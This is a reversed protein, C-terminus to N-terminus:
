VTDEGSDSSQRSSELRAKLQANELFLAQIEETQKAIASVLDEFELASQPQPSHRSSHSRHASSSTDNSSGTTNVYSDVLAKKEQELEATKALLQEVVTQLREKEEQLGMMELHQSFFGDSVTQLEGTAASAAAAQESRLKEVTHQYDVLQQQLAQLEAAQTDARETVEELQAVASQHQHQATELSSMLQEIQESKQQGELTSQHLEAALKDRRADVEKVLNLQREQQDQTKRLKRTTENLRFELVEITTQLEATNQPAADHDRMLLLQAQAQTLQSQLDDVHDAQANYQTSLEELQSTVEEIQAKLVRVEHQDSKITEQNTEQLTRLMECEQQAQEFDVLVAKLRARSETLQTSKAQLQHTCQQHHTELRRLTQEVKHKADSIKKIDSEKRQGDAELRGIVMELKEVSAALTKRQEKEGELARKHRKRMEEHKTSLEDLRAELKAKQAQCTQLTKQLQSVQASQEAISQQQYPQVPQPLEKHHGEMDEGRLNADDRRGQKGAVDTTSVEALGHAPRDAKTPRRVKSSHTTGHATEHQQHTQPQPHQRHKSQARGRAALARLQVLEDQLKDNVARVQANEVQCAKRKETMDVLEDQLQRTQQQLFDVQTELKSAIRAETIRASEATLSEMPRGGQLLSGLRAIEQDRRGIQDQLASIRTDVTGKEEELHKIQDALRQRETEGAEVLDLVAQDVRPPQPLSTLPEAPPLPASLEMRQRRTPIVTTGGSPTSIVAQLNKELLKDIRKKRADLESYQAKIQAAYQSNLFRLDANEHQLQAMVHKLKKIQGSHLDKRKILAVHLENVERMLKANDAALPQALDVTPPHTVVREVQEKADKLSATTHVLDSFLKEVLPLSALGLPQRYGFQDLRTRLAKFKAEVSASSM